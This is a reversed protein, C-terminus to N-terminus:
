AKKCDKNGLGITTSKEREVHSLLTSIHLLVTSDHLMSIQNKEDCLFM